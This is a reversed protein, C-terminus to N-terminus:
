RTTAVAVLLEEATMGQDAAHALDAVAAVVRCALSEEPRQLALPDVSCAVPRPAFGTGIDKGIELPEM